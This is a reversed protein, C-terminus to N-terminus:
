QYPSILWVGFNQSSKDLHNPRSIGYIRVNSMTDHQNISVVKRWFLPPLAKSCKIKNQWRMQHWKIDQLTMDSEHLCRKRVNKKEEKTMENSTMQHGIIDHWFRSLLAKSQDDRSDSSPCCFSPFILFSLFSNM